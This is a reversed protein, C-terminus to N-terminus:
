PPWIHYLMVYVVVGTASVYLWIPYTWRALRRHRAMYSASLPPQTASDATTRCCGTARFGLYIQCIALPPVTIALVVHSALIALYAYRIPGTQTFQVSGVQYHYWLYCALFVSSVAFASLMVRKHADIRQQKILMLGVVLLVAALANLAANLHVISHAAGILPVDSFSM